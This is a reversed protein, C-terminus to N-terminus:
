NQPEATVFGKSATNVILERGAHEFKVVPMEVEVVTCNWPDTIDGDEWLRLKYTKGIEFM